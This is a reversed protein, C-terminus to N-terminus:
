AAAKNIVRTPKKHLLLKGHWHTITLDTISAAEEKATEVDLGLFLGLCISTTVLKFLKYPIVVDKDNISKLLRSSVEEVQCMYRTVEEPKFVKHLINRLRLAEDDSNFIVVDGFLSYMYGLDKYGMDFLDAKETFSFM